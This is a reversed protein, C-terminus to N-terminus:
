PCPQQTDLIRDNLPHPKVLLGLRDHHCGPRVLMQLAAAPPATPAAPAKVPTLPPPAPPRQINAQELREHFCVRRPHTARLMPHHDGRHGPRPMPRPVRPRKVVRGRPQGRMGGLLGHPLQQPGRPRRHAPDHRPHSGISLRGAIPELPQPPDPDVLDAVLLAVAVEHDHHIM